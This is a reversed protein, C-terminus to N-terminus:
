KDGQKPIMSECRLCYDYVLRTYPCSGAYQLKHGFMKCSSYKLINNIM